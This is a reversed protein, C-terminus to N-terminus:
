RDPSRAVVLRYSHPRKRSSKSRKRRSAIDPWGKARRRNWCGFSRAYEPASPPYLAHSRRLVATLKRPAPALCPQRWAPHPGPRQREGKAAAAHSRLCRSRRRRRGHDTGLFRCRQGHRLRRRIVLVLDDGIDVAGRRDRALIEAFIQDGALAG